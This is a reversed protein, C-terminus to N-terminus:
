WTTLCPDKFDCWDCLRSPKCMWKGEDMIRTAYEILEKKCKEVDEKNFDYSVYSGGFRMMIYSARFRDIDPFKNLLYIGYVRLQFSDMYKLSKNTKYDKIHYVGDNDLDVRDVYGMISFEETLPIDFDDELSIINSGIGDTEMKNLYELLLNRAELLTDDALSKEKEMEDRKIKFSLKMMRKLNLDSGDKKFDEHFHELSGHVLTGLDFHPWDKRPLKEIYNYYYKRPCQQFTKVRSASLTLITEKEEAPEKKKTM